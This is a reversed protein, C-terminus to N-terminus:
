QSINLKGTSAIEKLMHNMLMLLFKDVKTNENLEKFHIGKATKLYVRVHKNNYFEINETIITNELVQHSSILVSQMAKKVNPYDELGVIVAGSGHYIHTNLGFVLALTQTQFGVIGSELPIDFVAIYVQEDSELSLNM